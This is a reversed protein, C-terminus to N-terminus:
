RWRVPRRPPRTRGAGPSRWQMSAPPAGDDRSYTSLRFRGDAGTLAAPRPRGAADPGLPVLVVRAGALPKGRWSVQGAAPVLPLRGPRGRGSLAALAAAASLATVIRATRKAM